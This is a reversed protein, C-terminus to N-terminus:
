FRLFSFFSLLLVSLPFSLLVAGLEVTSLEWQSWPRELLLDTSQLLRILPRFYLRKVPALVMPQNRFQRPEDGIKCHLFSDHSARPHSDSPPFPFHLEVIRYFLCRCRGKRLEPVLIKLLKSIILLQIGSITYTVIIM